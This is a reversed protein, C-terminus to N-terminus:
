SLDGEWHDCSQCIEDGHECESTRVGCSELLWRIEWQEGTQLNRPNKIKCQRSWPCLVKSISSSFIIQSFNSFFLKLQHDCVLCKVIPLSLNGSKELRTPTLWQQTSNAPDNRRCKGAFNPKWPHHHHHHHHYSSYSKGTTHPLVALSVHITVMNVSCRSVLTWTWSWLSM